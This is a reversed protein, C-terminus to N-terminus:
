AAPPPQVAAQAPLSASATRRRLWVVLPVLVLAAVVAFPLVAGLATLLVTVSGTFATWGATLGALFGTDDGEEELVKEDTSLRVEVPALAVADDLAALQTQTAELDAQRRTLEGELAVIESLKTAQTMLARVRAVSAQMTKVRSETDVYQATVDDTSANRSHVKGLGALRDLTADLQDTPVSITITSFGGMAPDDPESSIAEAVVLGKASAAIVRVKAAAADVDPVTVSIDARRALKRDYVAPAVAAAKAASAASAASGDSQVATDGGQTQEGTAPESRPGVAASDAAGSDDSSGASCGALAVLGTGIALAAAASTLRRAPRVPTRM